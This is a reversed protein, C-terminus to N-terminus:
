PYAPVAASQEFICHLLQREVAELCHLRLQMEAQSMKLAAANRSSKAQIESLKLAARGQARHVFELMLRLDSQSVDSTPMRPEEDHMGPESCNKNVTKIMM